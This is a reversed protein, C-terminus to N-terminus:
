KLNFPKFTSLQLGPKKLDGAEGGIALSDHRDLGPNVRDVPITAAGTVRIPQGKARAETGAVVVYPRM